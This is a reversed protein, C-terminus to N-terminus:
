APVVDQEIAILRKVDDPMGLSFAVTEGAVVKSAQGIRDLQRFWHMVLSECGRTFKAPIADAAYGATYTVVVNGFGRSFSYQGRMAIERIACVYWGSVNAGTSQPITVGDIVVSAVSIIPWRRLTLVLNNRGDYQDVVATSVIVRSLQSTLYDSAEAILIAITGDSATAGLLAKVRDVDTLDGAAV